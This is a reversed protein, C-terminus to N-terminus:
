SEAKKKRGGKKESKGNFEERSLSGDKNTDLTAFKAQATAQDSKEKTAAVYETSSVKGDGDTDAAMFLDKKKNKEAAHVALPLSLLIATAVILAQKKM